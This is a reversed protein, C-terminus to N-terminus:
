TEVNGDSILWIVQQLAKSASVRARVDESDVLGRILILIDKLETLDM